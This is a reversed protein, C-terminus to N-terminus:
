ALVTFTTGSGRDANDLFFSLLHGDGRLLGSAARYRPTQSDQGLPPLSYDDPM